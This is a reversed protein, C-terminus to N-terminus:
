RASGSLGRCAASARVREGDRAAGSRRGCGDIQVDSWRVPQGAAVPKVLKVDHALGLPLGGIRAVGGGADAQRGGHLRGRRRADRRAEPRAERHRGRRRPFRHRLRDARPAPRGLRGLHRGGARDPALAQVPLRLPRSPDTRVGYETFCRRIYETDGEFVVWVGFRIDYPIPTGDAELSSVVEVQGKHHLVGGEERPRM